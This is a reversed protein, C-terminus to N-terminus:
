WRLRALVLSKLAGEVILSLHVQECNVICLNLEEEPPLTTQSM